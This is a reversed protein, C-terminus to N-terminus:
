WSCSRSDNIKTKLNSFNALDHPYHWQDQTYRVLYICVYVHTNTHWTVFEDNINKNLELSWWKKVQNSWEITSNAHSRWRYSVRTRKTKRERERSHYDIHVPVNPWDIGHFKYSGAVYWCGDTGSSTRVSGFLRGFFVSGFSPSSSSSFCFSFSLFFVVATVDTLVFCFQQSSIFISSHSLCCSVCISIRHKIILCDRIINTFRQVFYAFNLWSTQSTFPSNINIQTQFHHSSKISSYVEINEHYVSHKMEDHHNSDNDVNANNYSQHYDVLLTLM